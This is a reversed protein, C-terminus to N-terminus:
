QKMELAARFSNSPSFVSDKLSVNVQGRYFSDSSNDPIDVDLIVSPIIHGRKKVDHDLAGLLSKSPVISTKGRVGTSLTHGPEGYDITAKDDCSLFVSTERERSAM